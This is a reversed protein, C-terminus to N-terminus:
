RATVETPVATWAASRPVSLLPHQQPRGTWLSVCAAQDKQICSFDCLNTKLQKTLGAKDARGGYDGGGGGGRMRKRWLGRGVAREGYDGGWLGKGMTGEKCGKEGYDGGWLGEGMTGVRCGKGWLGRGADRKGMTGEKEGYDRGQMGKGWLGRGADREGM